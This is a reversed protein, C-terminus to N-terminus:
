VAHAAEQRWRRRNAGNHCIRCARRGPMDLLNDGSLPHGRKCHTKERNHHRGRRQNEAPTVPELHQPNVCCRVRCLHDLHLGEPIVGRMMEYIVRHATGLKIKGYGDPCYPGYWLWCGTNPEPTWRTRLEDLTVSRVEKSCGCSRANGTLLRTRTLPLERGCDCRCLWVFKDRHRTAGRRRLVVKSLCTLHGFRWGTLDRPADYGRRGLADRVAVLVAPPIFADADFAWSSNGLSVSVPRIEQPRDSM